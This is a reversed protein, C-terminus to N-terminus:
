GLVKSIARGAAILDAREAVTAPGGSRTLVVQYGQGYVWITTTSANTHQYVDPAGPVPSCVAAAAETCAGAPARSASISLVRGAPNTLTAGTAGSGGTCGAPAKITGFEGAPLAARAAALAKTPLLACGAATGPEKPGPTPAAAAAASGASASSAPASNIPAPNAPAGSAAAYSQAPAAASSIASIGAGAADAGGSAASAAASTPAAAASPAAAAAASSSSSATSSSSHGLKPVVLAVLAALAAALLLNRGLKLRKIRRDLASNHENKGLEIIEEPSVESPPSDAVLSAFLAALAQEDASRGAEDSDDDSSM